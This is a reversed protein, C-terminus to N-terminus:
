WESDPHDSKPVAFLAFRFSVLSSRSPTSFPLLLSANNLSEAKIARLEASNGSGLM